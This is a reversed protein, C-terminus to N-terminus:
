AYWFGWSTTILMYQAYGVLLLRLVAIGGGLQIM